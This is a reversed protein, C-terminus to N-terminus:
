SKEKKCVMSKLYLFDIKFSPCEKKFCFNDFRLSYKNPFKCFLYGSYYPMRTFVDGSIKSRQLKYFANYSPAFKCNNM